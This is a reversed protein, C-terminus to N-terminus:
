TTTRSVEESGDTSVEANAQADVSGSLSAATAPDFMSGIMPAAQISTADTTTDTPNVALPSGPLVENITLRYTGTAYMAGGTDGNGTIPSFATNGFNSVALYYTGGTAVSLRLYADFGLTEGPAAGDNNAAM